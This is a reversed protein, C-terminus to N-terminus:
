AVRVVEVVANYDPVGTLPERRSPPLLGNAEPCFAQVNGDRMPAFHVRARMEGYPSRVLVADGAQLALAAADAESILLADRGAGTLPDIDNWVMSNFQKGRRTSLLFRGSPVATDNPVVVTFHARGDATPFVGDACLRPGGVQIADGTAHLTEIGAYAPIVRAIEERIEQATGCGLHEARAPDVRRAVDLFIEFESRAEGVPPGDLEPSFAVRRETTTSTGGGAQEYRTAAPLLLVIEGPDVLMQHTLVIDQHVRLPTRELAARTIDPAPLVDLFNGGSSWLVEIDGRRAGEVMGTSDLGPESPVSFGWQASLAAANVENVALGGPFATAYCGMEAGGQVGSHGRIPM